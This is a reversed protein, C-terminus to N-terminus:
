RSRFPSYKEIKLKGKKAQRRNIILPIVYVFLVIAVIIGLIAFTKLLAPDILIPSDTNEPLGAVANGTIVAGAMFFYFYSFFFTFFYAVLVGYLFKRGNIGDVRKM